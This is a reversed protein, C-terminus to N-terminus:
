EGGRNEFEEIKQIIRQISKTNEPFLKDLCRFFILAGNIISAKFEEYNFSFKGDGITLSLNSNNKILKVLLPQDPFNFEAMGDSHTEDLAIIFYEWLQDVLDWYRFGLIEKGYHRISIAGELYDFDLLKSDLDYYNQINVFISTDIQDM